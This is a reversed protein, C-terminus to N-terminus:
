RRKFRRKAFGRDLAGDLQAIEDAETGVQAVLLTSLPRPEPYALPRPKVSRGTARAIAESYRREALMDYIRVSGPVRELLRDRVSGATDAAAIEEIAEAVERLREENRQSISGGSLWSHITRRSVGALPAVAEITLGSAQRIRGLLRTAATALTVPNPSRAPLAWQGWGAAEITFDTPSSTGTEVPLNLVCLRRLLIEISTGIEMIMSHQELELSRCEKSFSNWFVDMRGSSAALSSTQSMAVNM